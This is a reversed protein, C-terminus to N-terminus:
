NEERRTKVTGMGFAIALAAQVTRVTEVRLGKIEPVSASDFAAVVARRFGHAAAEQLRSKLNEAPRLEGTLGVEGLLIQEAALAREKASSAMAAILALDAAPDHVTLGGAIKVFIDLGGVQLNGKRELIAALLAVRKSDVGAVV